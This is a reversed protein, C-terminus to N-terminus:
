FRYRFGFSPLLPLGSDTGYTIRPRDSGPDVELEPQLSSVNKRNLANLVELYLQWGGDPSGPKFTLRLDLRAYVPLRGRALNSVDGFDVVWVLNGAADRDPVLRGSGDSAETAAVRLGIPLTAPFGSAVRLTAGLDLRRRLGVTSVLSFAHRRDYDFPRRVGYADLTARGWTYSLWGSLRDTASRARKELYVDFGYAAGRGANVPVSTIRPIAPVSWALTAPFDYRALRAATEAATELRGIVLESFRRVYAEFRLTVAPTLSRGIGGLAHTSRESALRRADDPTLDLFYDGQLLKEYGPSQTYRGVAAKLRTRGTLDLEAGLRPSVEVRAALTSRDLRVGPTIRVTPSVQIRDQLWVGARTSTRTSRLLSPLGAGGIVASGNAVSANRDGDIRWGWATRLAHTEFGTEVLHRGNPQWALEQRLSLDRVGLDRTFVITARREGTRGPANSRRAGDSVSGDVDLADHYDYWAVITRAGVSRGLVAGYTVSAVDNRSVDGLDVYDSTRSGLTADTKERSRLGFFTLRHGPRM